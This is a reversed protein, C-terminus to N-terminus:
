GIYWGSLDSLIYLRLLAAKTIISYSSLGDILDSGSANVVTPSAPSAAGVLDKIWISRDFAAVNAGIPSQANVWASVLPLRIPTVGAVSLLIRSAYNPVTFPGTTSVLLEPVVPVLQWGLSPGLYARIFQCNTGSVDLNTLNDVMVMGRATGAGKRM